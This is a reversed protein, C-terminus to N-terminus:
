SIEKNHKLINLLGELLLNTNAFIDNKITDRLFEADGGTLVTTLSPFKESYANIYGEIEYAIGRLVGSHMSESTSGGILPVEAIRELLPLNETFTHMAKYRMNLGPSIAGGHYAGSADIFDYTVCTGADIVLVNTNPFQEFAASVLAIRDVGLTKRSKYKNTFPVPLDSTLHLLKFRKELREKDEASLSGVSSLICWDLDPYEKELADLKESLGLVSISSRHEMVGSSNFVAVKALTNGIDIVLDMKKSFPCLTVINILLM